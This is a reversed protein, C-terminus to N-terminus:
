SRVKKNKNLSEVEEVIFAHSALPEVLIARTLKVHKAKERKVHKRRFAQIIREWTV